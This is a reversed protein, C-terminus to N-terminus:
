GYANILIEKVYDLAYMYGLYYAESKDPKAQKCGSAEVELEKMTLDVDGDRVNVLADIYGSEHELKDDGNRTIEMIKDHCLSKITSEVNEIKSM